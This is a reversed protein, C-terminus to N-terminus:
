LYVPPLVLLHGRGNGEPDCSPVALTGDTFEMLWALQSDYAWSFADCEEATLPRVKKITKGVLEGFERSVYEARFEPSM